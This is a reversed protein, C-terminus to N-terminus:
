RFGGLLCGQFIGEPDYYRSMEQSGKRNRGEGLENQGAHAFNLHTYDAQMDINRAAIDNILTLTVAEIAASEELHKWTGTLRAVVIPKSDTSLTPIAKRLFPSRAIIIPVIPQLPCPGSSVRTIGFLTALANGFIM